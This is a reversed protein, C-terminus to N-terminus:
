SARRLGLHRRGPTRARRCSSSKKAARVCSRSMRPLSDLWRAHVRGSEPDVLISGIKIVIRKADAPTTMAGGGRPKKTEARWATIMELMQKLVADNPGDRWIM